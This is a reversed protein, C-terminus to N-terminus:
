NLYDMGWPLSEIPHFKVSDGANTLEWIGVGEIPIPTTFISRDFHEASPLSCWGFENSWFLANDDVFPGAIIYYNPKLM